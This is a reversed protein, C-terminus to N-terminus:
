YLGEALADAVARMNAAWDRALPDLVVVRAGIERAVLRAATADFQPQVFLVRAGDAAKHGREIPVQELGYAAALHGWAAHLVLFRREARGTLKARLLADVAETEAIVAALRDSLAREADPLLPVLAAALRVALSRIQRPTVWVHPDDQELDAVGEAAEGDAMRLVPLEPSEDLLPGLWASEFPFAPHGVAVYLRASELRRLQRITPEHTIPSAGPPVMVEIRVRDGALQEVVWAQPPVSVAVLPRPDAPAEPGCGGSGSAIVALLAAAGAGVRTREPARRVRAALASRSM